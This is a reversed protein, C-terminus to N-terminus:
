RLEEVDRVAGNVLAGPAGAGRAAAALVSGFCQYNTRGELDLLWVVPGAEAFLRLLEDLPSAGDAPVLRVTRLPGAMPPAPSWVPRLAGTRVVALALADCADSADSSSLDAAPM